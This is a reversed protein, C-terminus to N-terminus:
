LLGLAAWPSNLARVWVPADPALTGRVFLRSVTLLAYLITAGHGLADALDYLFGLTGGGGGSIRSGEVARIKRDMIEQTELQQYDMTLCKKVIAIDTMNDSKRMLNEQYPEILRMALSLALNLGVMWWVLTMVGEGGALLRDLIQAGLIIGVFPYAANLLAKLITVPLLGPMQASVVQLSAQFDRFFEKRDPKKM